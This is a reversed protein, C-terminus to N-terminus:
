SPGLSGDLDSSPNHLCDHGVRHRRFRHFKCASHCFRSARLSDPRLIASCRDLCLNTAQFLRFHYRRGLSPNYSGVGTLQQFGMVLMGLITRGIYKERFIEKFSSTSVKLHTALSDEMRKLEGEVDECRQASKLVKRADESRGVHVLWRPSFPVFCGWVTYQLLVLKSSSRYGGLLAELSINVEM